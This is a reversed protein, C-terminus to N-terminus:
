RNNFALLTKWANEIENNQLKEHAIEHLRKELGAQDDQMDIFLDALEMLKYENVDTENPLVETNGLKGLDNGTLLASTRVAEPLGDVGMGLRGVPKPVEFMSEANARCYWSGGMRAVLDIRHQDIKEDPDLVEENIHIMVVECLILNGSGPQDSLEIVERVICEFQVPSEKVRFPKVKLSKEATLGAKEFENVGTPYDTSALSMQQVFNPNGEADVTSAFAIPRPGVAGLLYGHVKRVSLESPDITKM